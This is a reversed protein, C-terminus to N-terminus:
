NIVFKLTYQAQPHMIHAVYFGPVFDALFLEQHGNLAREFQTIGNGSVIKLHYDDSYSAKINLISATNDFWATILPSTKTEKSSTVQGCLKPDLVPVLGSNGGSCRGCTDFKAGGGSEGSCDYTPKVFKSLLRIYKVQYGCSNETVSWSNL